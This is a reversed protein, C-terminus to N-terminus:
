GKQELFKLLCLIFEEPQDSHVWHGAGPITKLRYDPFIASILPIDEDRIYDSDGGRIFLTDKQFPLNAPVAEMIEDLNERISKLNIRWTFRNTGVRILNKLVFLQLVRDTIIGNIAQEVGSRSNVKDFDVSQMAELMRIHVQRVQTQGPSIDVVVLKEVMGPYKVAFHMALKGGLSHGLLITREISYKELLELLDDCMPIFGFANSHPSRGHNRLDPIIVRFKEALVKGVTIWNDSIGFLGHLIVIPPGEGLAHCFLEM